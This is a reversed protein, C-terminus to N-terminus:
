ESKCLSRHALELSLLKHIEVTCNRTGKIHETVLSEVARGNLWPRDLSQRDLLVQKIYGALPGRYWSRFHCFKQRGLVLRELRLPRLCSDARALWDPMGYDYAYEAKALFEQVARRARNLAKDAPYTIGRDTPIRGLKPNGDAILKLSPELSVAAEPPAKFALSVLENDLFPSRVDLQSQEVAFRSFHHWPVQKFAIFSLRQAAAEESYTQRVNEVMATLDTSFLDTSLGRPRFAVFRRLIESGYNGTLRVPAIARARRNVYLEAAGTVDMAADSVYVAKEALSGFQDFFDNGIQITQHPKGCTRAVLRAIKVDACDRLPGNFTYCPLKPATDGCWAMIMRGDLGGTLSMAIQRESTVYRKLVRPFTERLAGYFSEPDLPTQQEWLAPDFYRQKAVKGDASWVWASGPPLLSIGSFLTRNQLTCGCSLWEALGRQDFKRSEPAVHLLAKAESAFHLGDGSEHYYVRGLGYRDNFLVAQRRRLDLVVGSFVGNLETLFSLGKQEYLSVLHQLQRSRGPASSDDGSSNGFVEGSLVLGVTGAENWQCISAENKSVWGLFAGIDPKAVSGFLYFPEHMM